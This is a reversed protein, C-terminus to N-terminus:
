CHQRLAEEIERCVDADTEADRRLELARRAAPEAINGLAWACAARVLPEADEIGRALSPISAPLPCNGLM